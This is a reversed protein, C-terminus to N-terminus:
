KLSVRTGSVRDGIRLGKKSVLPLVAEVFNIGPVALFLNRLFSDRYSAPGGGGRSVRLGMLAKGPSRGQMYGDKFLLYGGFVITMGLNISVALIKAILGAPDLVIYALGLIGGAFISFCAMLTLALMLDLIFASYRKAANVEGFM